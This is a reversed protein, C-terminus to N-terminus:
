ASLSLTGGNSTFDGSWDVLNNPDELVAGRSMSISTPVITAQVIMRSRDIIIDPNSTTESKLTVVAGLYCSISNGSFSYVELSGGYVLVIPINGGTFRAQASRLTATAVTLGQGAEVRAGTGLTEYSSCVFTEDDFYALGLYGAHHKIINSSSSGRLRMAPVNGVGSTGCRYITATCAVSSLDINIRPSVADVELLATKIKLFKERYETYGDANLEALGVVNGTQSSSFVRLSALTVASQDLGTLISGRSLDVNANDTNGPVSGTDWNAANNWDNPGSATTTVSSSGSTITGSASSKATTLVHDMGAVKGTATITASNVSWTIRTYEAATMAAALAVLAAAITPKDSSAATHTISKGNITITFTDGPAVTGGIVITNIQARPTARALWNLTAM